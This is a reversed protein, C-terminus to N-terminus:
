IYLYIIRSHTSSFSSSSTTIRNAGTPPPPPPPPKRESGVGSLPLLEGRAAHVALDIWNGYFPTGSLFTYVFARTHTFFHLFFILFFYYTYLFGRSPLRNLGPRHTHACIYIHTHTYVLLLYYTPWPASRGPPICVPWGEQGLHKGECGDGSGRGGGPLRTGDAFVASPSVHSGPGLTQWFRM